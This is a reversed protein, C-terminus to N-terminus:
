IGWRKKYYKQMDKWCKTQEKGSLKEVQNKHQRWLYLVRPHIAVNYKDLMRCAMNYDTAYKFQEDFGGVDNLCDIRMVRFHGFLNNTVQAHRWNSKSILKPYIRPRKNIVKGSADIIYFHSSIHGIDKQRTTEFYKIGEHVAGPLLMDDADLHGMYKIHPYKKNIEKLIFNYRPMQGASDKFSYYRVNKHKSQFKRIIEDSHDESGDNVVIYLFNKFKQEKVSKFCPKLFAAKNKVLTVLAFRFM